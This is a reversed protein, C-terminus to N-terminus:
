RRPPRSSAGLHEAEIDGGTFSYDVLPRETPDPKRKLLPPRSAQSLISAGERAATRRPPGTVAGRLELPPVSDTQALGSAASPEPVHKLAVPEPRPRLTPLRSPRTSSTSETPVAGGSKVPPPSSLSTLGAARLEAGQGRRERHIQELAAQAADRQAQLRKLAERAQEREETLRDVTKNVRELRLRLDEIALAEPDPPGTLASAAPPLTEAESSSRVGALESRLADREVQLELVTREHEDLISSLFRDHEEVIFQREQRSREQLESLARKLAAVEQQDEQARPPEPNAPPVEKLAEAFAQQADRTEAIALAMQRAIGELEELKADVQRRHGRVANDESSSAGFPETTKSSTSTPSASM